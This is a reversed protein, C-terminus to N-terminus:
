YQVLWQRAPNPQRIKGDDTLNMGEVRVLSGIRVQECKGGRLAVKGRPQGTAADAIQVSQTGGCFGTVRVTVIISRKAALMPQWYDGSSKLVVGEGGAALVRELLDAGNSECSPIEDIGNAHCLEGRARLRLDLPHVRIDWGGREVCDFATFRNGVTEGVLIGGTVERVTFVGDFKIEFHGAGRWERLAQEVPVCIKKPHTVQM